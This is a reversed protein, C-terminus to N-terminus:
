EDWHAEGCGLFDSFYGDTNDFTNPNIGNGNPHLAFEFADIYTFELYGSPNRHALHNYFDQVFQFHGIQLHNGGAFNIFKKTQWGWAISPWNGKATAQALTLKKDYGCLVALLKSSQWWHEDSATQCGDMAAYKLPYLLRNTNQFEALSISMAPISLDEGIGKPSGHGFYHLDTFNPNNLISKFQGWSNTDQLKPVSFYQVTTSDIPSNALSVQHAVNVGSAQLYSVMDMDVDDQITPSTFLPMEVTLGFRPFRQQRQQKILTAQAPPKNAQAPTVTVNLEWTQLAYGGVNPWQAPNYSGDYVGFNGNTPVAATAQYLLNGDGYLELHYTGQITTSVNFYAFAQVYDDWDPFSIREDPLVARYFKTDEATTSFIHNTDTAVTTQLLTWDTLNTSEEVNYIYGPKTDFHIVRTVNDDDLDIELYPASSSPDRLKPHFRTGSVVNSGVQQILALFDAPTDQIEYIKNTADLTIAPLEGHYPDSPYPLQPRTKLYFTDARLPLALSCIAACSVVLRALINTTKM